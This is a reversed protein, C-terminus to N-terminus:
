TQSGVPIRVVVSTGAADTVTLDGGAAVVRERMALLGSGGGHHGGVGDDIVSLTVAGDGNVLRVSCSGASAHRVVNTVSERLALALVTEVSPAVALPEVHESMEVDAAQLTRRAGDLEESFSAQLWGSVTERFRSLLERSEHEISAAEEVARGPDADVLRQVLQSRLILGTLSQGALDHLDRSIRERETVTALYEIRANEARLTDAKSILAADEYVAMGIIWVMVAPIALFLVFPWDLPSTLLSVLTLASIVALRVQVDRRTGFEAVLAAAYVPLVSIASSGFPTASVAIVMLVIAGITKERRGGLEARIFTVASAVVIGIEMPWRHAAPDPDFTPALLIFGLFILYGWTSFFSRERPEATTETM